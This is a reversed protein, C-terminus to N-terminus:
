SPKKRASKLKLSCGSALQIVSGKRLLVPRGFPIRQGNVWTGHTSSDIITWDEGNRHLECHLPAIIQASDPIVIDIPTNGDKAASGVLVADKDMAYRTGCAAGEVMELVPVKGRRLRLIGFVAALLLATLSGYAFYKVRNVLSLQAQVRSSLAGIAKNNPDASQARQLLSLAGNLDGMKFKTRAENADKAAEAKKQQDAQAAAAAAKSQKDQEDKQKQAEQLFLACTPHPNAATLEIVQQCIALKDDHTATPKFYLKMLAEIRAQKDGEENTGAEQAETLVEPPAPTQARCVTAALATLTLLATRWVM